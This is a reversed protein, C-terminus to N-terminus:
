YNRANVRWQNGTKVMTLTVALAEDPLPTGAACTNHLTGAAQVYRLTANHPAEAPVVGGAGIVVSSCKNAVFRAWDAGAGASNTLLTEYTAFLHPTVFPQIRPIWASPQDTYVAGRYTSLWSLAVAIVAADPGAAAAKSTSASTSTTSASATSTSTTATTSITTAPVASEAPAVSAAATSDAVSEPESLRVVPAGSVFVAGTAGPASLSEASTAACGSVALGMLVSVAVAGRMRKILATGLAGGTINM